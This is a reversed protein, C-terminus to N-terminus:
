QNWESILREIDLEDLTQIGLSKCDQVLGDIVRSMQATNYRSTGYYLRIIVRGELKGDDVKETVWGTGLMGWATKITPVADAPLEIDRFVGATKIAERYVEDKTSHIKEAILTCLEWMYANANLSRKKRYPKVTLDIDRGDLMESNLFEKDTVEFTVIPKGMYSFARSVAKAKM